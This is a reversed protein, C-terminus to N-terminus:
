WDDELAIGLISLGKDTKFGLWRNIEHLEEYIEPNIENLKEYDGEELTKLPM